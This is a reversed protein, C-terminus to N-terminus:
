GSLSLSLSLFHRGGAAVSHTRSKIKNKGLSIYFLISVLVCLGKWQRVTIRSVCRAIVSEGTSYSVNYSAVVVNRGSSIFRSFGNCLVIFWCLCVSMSPFPFFLSRKRSRKRHGNVTVSIISTVDVMEKQSSIFWSPLLPFVIVTYGGSKAVRSITAPKKRVSDPLFLGM